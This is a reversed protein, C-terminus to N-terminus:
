NNQCCESRPLPLSLMRHQACTLNYSVAGLVSAARYPDLIEPSGLLCFFSLNLWYIKLSAQGLPTLHGFADQFRQVAWKAQMTGAM